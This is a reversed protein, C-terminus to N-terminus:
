FIISHVVAVLPLCVFGAGVIIAIPQFRKIDEDSEGPRSIMYRRLGKFDVLLAVGLAAVMLFM